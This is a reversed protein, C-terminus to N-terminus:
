VRKKVVIITNNRIDWEAGGGLLNKMKANGEAKGNGFFYVRKKAM